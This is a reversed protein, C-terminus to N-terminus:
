SLVFSKSDGSVDTVVCRHQQPNLNEPSHNGANRPITTYKYKADFLIEASFSPNVIEQFTPFWV